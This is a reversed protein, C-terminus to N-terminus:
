ILKRRKEIENASMDDPIGVPLTEINQMKSDGVCYSLNSNNVRTHTFREFILGRPKTLLYHYSTIELCRWSKLSIIIVTRRM